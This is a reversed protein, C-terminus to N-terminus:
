DSSVIEEEEEEEDLDYTNTLLPEAAENTHSYIYDPPYDYEGNYFKERAEEETEATVYFSGEWIQEEEVTFEFQKPM